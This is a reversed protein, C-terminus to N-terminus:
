SFRRMRGMPTNEVPKAKFVQGYLGFLPHQKCLLPACGEPIIKRFRIAKIKGIYYKLLPSVRISDVKKLAVPVYATICIRWNKPVQNQIFSEQETHFLSPDASGCYPVFKIKSFLTCPYQIISKLRVPYDRSLFYVRGPLMGSLPM